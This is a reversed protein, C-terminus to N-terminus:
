HRRQSNQNNFNIYEDDDGFMRKRQRGYMESIRKDSKAAMRGWVMIVIGVGVLGLFGYGAIVKDSSAVFYGWCFGLFVFALGVFTHGVRTSRARDGYEQETEFLENPDQNFFHPQHKM